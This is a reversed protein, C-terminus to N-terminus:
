RNLKILDSLIKFLFSCIHILSVFYIIWLCNKVKPKNHENFAYIDQFYATWSRQSQLMNLVFCFHQTFIDESLNYRWEWSCHSSTQPSQSQNVPWSQSVLMAFWCVRFLWKLKQASVQWAVQSGLKNAKFNDMELESYIGPVFLYGREEQLSHFAHTFQFIDWAAFILFVCWKMWHQPGSEHLNPGWECYGFCIIKM